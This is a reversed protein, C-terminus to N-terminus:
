AMAAGKAHSMAGVRDPDPHYRPRRLPPHLRATRSRTLRWPDIETSPTHLYRRSVREKRWNTTDWVIYYGREHSPGLVQPMMLDDKTLWLQLKKHWRWNRNNRSNSFFFFTLVRSAM